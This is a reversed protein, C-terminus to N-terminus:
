IAPQPPAQTEADQPDAEEWFYLWTHVVPEENSKAFEARALELLTDEGAKQPAEIEFSTVYWVGSDGGNGPIAVGIEVNYTTM